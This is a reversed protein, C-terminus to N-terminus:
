STRWCIPRRPWPPVPGQGAADPLSPRNGRPQCIRGSVVGNRPRDMRRFASVPPQRRGHVFDRRGGPGGVATRRRGMRSTNTRPQGRVGEVHSRSFPGEAQVPCQAPPHQDAPRDTGRDLELPREGATALPLGAASQAAHIRALRVHPRRRASPLLPAGGPPIRPRPLQLDPRDEPAIEPPGQRPQMKCKAHGRLRNCCSNTTACALRKPKIGAAGHKEPKM